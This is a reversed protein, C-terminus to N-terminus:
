QLNGTDKERYYKVILNDIEVSLSYVRESDLGTDVLANLRDKLAEIREELVDAVGGIM